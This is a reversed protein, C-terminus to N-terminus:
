NNKKYKNVYEPYLELPMKGSIPMEGYIGKMLSSIIEDNYGFTCLFTKASSFYDYFVSASKLAVVISKDAGHVLSFVTTRWTEGTYMTSSGVTSPIESLYLILDYEQAIKIGSPKEDHKTEEDLFLQMKFEAGRKAFEETFKETLYKHSADSHGLYIGVVKKIKDTSLPLLNNKDCVKTISKEAIKSRVEASKKLVDEPLTEAIEMEKDFLGLKEKMNLVRSCADDVRSEPIYGSLVAEEIADIYVKFDNPSLIVDNGAKLLEVYLRRPEYATSLGKMGIGDTIVVGDFGMEEKLLGVIIKSSLTAPIYDDNLITDDVAPFCTHGVMVAMVGKDIANQFVAGQTKKWEDLPAYNVTISAHSDRYEDMGVGPFHKITAAIGCSQIGDIQGGTMKNILEVNKTSFTRNILANYKINCMDAVPNWVWNVGGYKVESAICVGSEYALEASDTAGLATATGLPTLEPFTFHGGSEADTGALLPIKVSDNLKKMWKAHKITYDKENFGEAIGDALNIDGVNSAGYVWIGGCQNERLYDCVEETTEFDQILNKQCALATQAIKERLTLESLAPKKM